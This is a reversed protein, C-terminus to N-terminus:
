VPSRRRGLRWAPGRRCAIEAALQRRRAEVVDAPRWILGYRRTLEEDLQQRRACRAPEYFMPASELVCREYEPTRRLAEQVAEAVRRERATARAKRWSYRTYSPDSLAAVTEFVQWLVFPVGLTWFLFAGM